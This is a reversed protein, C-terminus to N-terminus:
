MTFSDGMLIKMAKKDYNTKKSRAGGFFPYGKM